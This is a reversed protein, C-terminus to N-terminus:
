RNRQSIAKKQKVFAKRNKSVKLTFVAVVALLALTGGLILLVWLEIEALIDSMGESPQATQLNLAGESLAAAETALIEFDENFEWVKGDRELRILATYLGEGLGVGAEDVFALPFVSHPAFEVEIDERTLIPLNEGQRYVAASAIVDRTIRPLPNRIEAVIAARHNILRTSIGGFVLQPEAEEAGIQLRVAIAFTFRNIITGTNAAEALQEDTINNITNIAGLIIGDFGEDPISIDISLYRTEGPSLVTIDREPIAIDAFDTTLTEDPTGPSGYDIIGNINTTPTFTVTSVSLEESTTNTIIIQITQEMGPKVMLDFFGLSDPVQNEPLVPTVSFGGGIVGAGLAGFVGFSLAVSLVLLVLSIKITCKLQQM